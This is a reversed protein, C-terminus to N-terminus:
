QQKVAVDLLQVAGKELLTMIEQDGLQFNYYQYAETLAYDKDAVHKGRHEGLYSNCAGFEAIDAERLALYRSNFDTMKPMYSDYLDELQPGLVAPEPNGEALEAAKGVIEDFTALMEEALRAGEGGTASESTESPMSAATTTPGADASDEGGCGGVALLGLGLIVLLVTTMLLGGRGGLRRTDM